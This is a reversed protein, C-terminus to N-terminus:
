MAASGREIRTFLQGQAAALAMSVAGTVIADDGLSSGAVRPEFPSLRHLERRVPGLLVDGNRGLIGGLVVLAPDVIPTVAAIALAVREAVVAAARGAAREGRRARDFVEQPETVARVGERRALSVIGEAGLVEELAGRRRATKGHPDTTAIPLYAVEGAAGSAGRYLEGGLVLGMGVGTGVHLYVFDDVGRGLGRAREGLTALNVDNEFAVKTGLEDRVAELLGARGWGPLNHALAVQGREPDFVGPSGVVAYTVQRWGIGAQSALSHAIEGIQGILTRASRVKAREQRSAVSTGNLDAIAARVFDRGVDLGVVWGATPNLEYLVATPGKGGSTRGAQRVLMSRELALLAQSVTPKSLGTERAVQARSLPGHTRISELV